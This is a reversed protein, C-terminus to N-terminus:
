LLSYSRKIIFEFPNQNKFGGKQAKRDSFLNEIEESWFYDHFENFKETLVALSRIFTFSFKFFFDLFHM